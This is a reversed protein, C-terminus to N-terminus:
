EDRGVKSVSQLCYEKRGQLQNVSNSSNRCGNLPGTYPNLDKKGCVHSPPNWTRSWASGWTCSPDPCFAPWHYWSYYHWWSYIMWASWERQSYNDTYCTEGCLTQGLAEDVEEQHLNVKSNSTGSIGSFLSSFLFTFLTSLLLETCFYVSKCFHWSQFMACEFTKHVLAYYLCFGGLM